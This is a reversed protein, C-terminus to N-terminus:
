VCVIKGFQYTSQDCKFLRATWARPGYACFWVAGIHQLFFYAKQLINM